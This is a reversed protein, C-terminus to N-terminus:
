QVRIRFLSPVYSRKLLADHMKATVLGFSASTVSRAKSIKGCAIDDLRRALDILSDARILALEDTHNM